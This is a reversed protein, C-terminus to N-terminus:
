KISAGVPWFGSYYGDLDKSDAFFLREREIDSEGINFLVSPLLATIDTFTQSFQRTSFLVKESGDNRVGKWLWFWASITYKCSRSFHQQQNFLSLSDFPVPDTIIPITTFPPRGRGTQISPNNTLQNQYHKLTQTATEASLLFCKSLSSNYIWMYCDYHQGCLDPCRKANRSVMSVSRVSRWSPIDDSGDRISASALFQLIILLYIALYRLNWHIM